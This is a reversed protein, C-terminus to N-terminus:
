CECTSTSPTSLDKPTVGPDFGARAHRPRQRVSLVVTVVVVGPAERRTRRGSLILAAVRHFPHLVKPQPCPPPPSSRTGRPYAVRNLTGARTTKTADMGSVAASADEAGFHSPRANASIGAGQTRRRSPRALLLSPSPRSTSPVTTACTAFSAAPMLCCAGDVAVVTEGLEASKTPLRLPKEVDLLRVIAASWTPPHSRIVKVSTM